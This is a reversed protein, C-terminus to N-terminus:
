FENNEYDNFLENDNLQWDHGLKKLAELSEFTINNIRKQIINKEVISNTLQILNNCVIDYNENLEILKTRLSLYEPILSNLCKNYTKQNLILKIEEFKDINEPDIRFTSRAKKPLEIIEVKASKKTNGKKPKTNKAKM